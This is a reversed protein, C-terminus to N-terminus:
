EDAVLRCAPGGGHGRRGEERPRPARAGPRRREIPVLRQAIRPAPKVVAFVQRRLRLCHQEAAVRARENHQGVRGYGVCSLGHRRVGLNAFVRAAGEALPQDHDRGHDLRKEADDRHVDDGPFVHGAEQRLHRQLRQNQTAHHEGKRSVPQGVEVSEGKEGGEAEAADDKDTRVDTVLCALLGDLTVRQELHPAQRHRGGDHKGPQRAVDRERGNVGAHLPWRAKAAGQDPRKRSHEDEVGKHPRAAVEQVPLVRRDDHRLVHRAARTPRHVAQEDVEDQRAHGELEKARHRHADHDQCIDGLIQVRLPVALLHALVPDHVQADAAPQAPNEGGDYEIVRELIHGSENTRACRKPAISLPFSSHRNHVVRSPPQDSPFRASVSGNESEWVRTEGLPRAHVGM